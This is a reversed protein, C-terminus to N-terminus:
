QCVHNLQVPQVEQKQNRKATEIQHDFKPCDVEAELGDDGFLRKLQERKLCQGTALAESLRAKARPM